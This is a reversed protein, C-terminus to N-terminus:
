QTPHDTKRAPIQLSYNRLVKDKEGLMGADVLLQGDISIRLALPNGSTLLLHAQPANISLTEGARLLAEKLLKGDPTHLQLWVNQDVAKLRFRHGAYPATATKNKKAPPSANTKEPKTAESSTNKLKITQAPLLEPKLPKGTTLVSHQKATTKDTAPATKINPQKIEAPPTSNAQEKSEMAAPPIITNDLASQPTTIEEQEENVVNFLVLLLLFAVSAAIAWGRNMAIPPDPMTFPKTLQYESPKLAETESSIDVGLLAAYQRLFGMVYVEEPLRSWDGSELGQLYIIQIRLRDCVESLSMAKSERSSSLKKGLQIRAQNRLETESLPTEESESAQNRSM